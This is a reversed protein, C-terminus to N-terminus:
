NGVSVGSRDSFEFVSERIQHEWIAATNGDCCTCGSYDFERLNALGLIAQFLDLADKNPDQGWLPGFSSYGWEGYMMLCECKVFHGIAQILEPIHGDQGFPQLHIEVSKTKAEIATRVEDNALSNTLRTLDARALIIVNTFHDVLGKWQKNVLEFTARTKKRQESSRGVEAWGQFQGVIEPPLQPLVM